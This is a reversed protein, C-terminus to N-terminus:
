VSCSEFTQTIQRVTAAALGRLAHTPTSSDFVMCYLTNNARIAYYKGQAAVRVAEVPQRSGVRM